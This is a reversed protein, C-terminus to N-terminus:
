DLRIPRPHWMLGLGIVHRISIRSCAESTGCFSRDVVLDNFQYFLFGELTRSFTRSVRPGAFGTQYSGAQIGVPVNQLRTYHTYGIYASTSWRRGLPRTVTFRAMDTTAGAFLGAASSNYRDYSMMLSTRPFRYRLSARASTSLKLTNGTAPSSLRTLQPGAGLLLDMRGTVQYGYLFQTVHSVFTFGGVTPFQFHQFGYVLAIKNRRNITHDYGAQATTARSDILLGGSAQTFHVINYGASLTFASRQTLLQQLDVVALNDVRPVTGISGFTNAGFFTFREGSAGGLGVVGTGGLGTGGLGGAGAFTGGFTGDPLYSFSDRITLAGTRWLARADFNLEQIQTNQRATGAYIGGGGVYDLGVQYREWFRQLAASGLLHTVGTLATGNNGLSNGANSDVVQSAQAGFVLFSRAAVNPELSAEDLGSLPPFQSQQPPTPEQGMAPAAGSSGTQVNESQQQDNSTQAWGPLGLAMTLLLSIFSFNRM